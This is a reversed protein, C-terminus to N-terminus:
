EILNAGVLSSDGTVVGEVVGITDGDGTNEKEGARGGLELQGRAVVKELAAPEGELLLVDGARLQLAKTPKYRRFRERVITTVKVDGEGYTEVEGATKGVLHSEPSVRAEVVYNEINIAADLSVGARRDKPLIR